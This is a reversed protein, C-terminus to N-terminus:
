AWSPVKMGDSRRASKVAERRRGRTATTMTWAPSAVWATM